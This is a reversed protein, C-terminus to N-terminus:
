GWNDDHLDDIYVLPMRHRDDQQPRIAPIAASMQNIHLNLVKM